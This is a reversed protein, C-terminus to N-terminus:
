SPMCHTESGTSNPSSKFKINILKPILFGMMPEAKRYCSCWFLLAWGSIFSEPISAKQSITNLWHYLFDKPCTSSMFFLFPKILFAFNNNLSSILIIKWKQDAVCSTLLLFQVPQISLYMASTLSPVRFMVSTIILILSSVRVHCTFFYLHELYSKFGTSARTFILTPCNHGFFHTLDLYVFYNLCSRLQICDSSTWSSTVLTLLPTLTIFSSSTSSGVLSSNSHAIPLNWGEM